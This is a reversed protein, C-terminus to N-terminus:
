RRTRHRWFATIATANRAATSEAQNMLVRRGSVYLAFVLRNNNGGRALSSSAELDALPEGCRGLDQSRNGGVDPQGRVGVDLM